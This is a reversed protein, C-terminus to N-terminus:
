FPHFSEEVLTFFEVITSSSTFAENKKQQYQHAENKQQPKSHHFNM